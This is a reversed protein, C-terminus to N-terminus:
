ASSPMRSESVHSSNLRTSKRNPAGSPPVRPTRYIDLAEIPTAGYTERRPAGLRRRVAESNTAYRKTIQALNPAYQSQDYAADLEAQDMDLWVPPGKARPAPQAHAPQGSKGIALTTAAMGLLARRKNLFKM